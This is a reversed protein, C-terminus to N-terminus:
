MVDIAAEISDYVDVYKEIRITSLIRQVLNNPSCIAISSRNMKVQKILVVIYGLGSSDITELKGLDVIVKQFKEVCRKEIERRTDALTNINLENPLQLVLVGDHMDYTNM